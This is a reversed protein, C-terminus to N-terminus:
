SYNHIESKLSTGSWLINILEILQLIINKNFIKFDKVFNSEEEVNQLIKIALPIFIILKEAPIELLNDLTWRQM